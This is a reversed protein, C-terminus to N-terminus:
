RGGSQCVHYLFTGASLNDYATPVAPHIQFYQLSRKSWFNLVVDAQPHMRLLEKLETLGENSFWNYGQGYKAVYGNESSAVANRLQKTRSDGCFIRYSTEEATGEPSLSTTKKGDEGLYNGDVWRNTAMVGRSSFYYWSGGIKKWGTAASGDSTFYYTKQPFYRWGTAM